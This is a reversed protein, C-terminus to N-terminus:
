SRCVVNHHVYGHHGSCGNATTVVAYYTGSQSSTISQTTAGTNWLYSQGSAATLTVSSGSCFSLSGNATVSTDPDAFLTTTYTATTDTCGNATTVVAYYTGSQSSTISQTTDGTSWLYSQGSAATLTVSSGSCFSLSGNATVSTDPDAFLTTTYTATTDSCGNSTTVVAYYTGSQSSTISQTTDGTSWLYSQGSAATLTVSSGSCFSLSGSATVSTNPMAYNALTFSNTTDWCGFANQVMSYYTGPIGTIMYAGTDGSSWSYAGGANFNYFMVQEGECVSVM